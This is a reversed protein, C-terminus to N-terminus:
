WLTTSFYFAPSGGRGEVIQASLLPDIEFATTPNQFQGHAGIYNAFINPNWVWFIQQVEM